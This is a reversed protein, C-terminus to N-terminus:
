GTFGPWFNQMLQPAELNGFGGRYCRCATRVPAPVIMGAVLVGARAAGLRRPRQHSQSIGTASTAASMMAAM